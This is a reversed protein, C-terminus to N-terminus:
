KNEIVLKESINKGFKETIQMKLQQLNGAGIPESTGDEGEVFLTYIDDNKVDNLETLIKKFFVPLIQERVMEIEKKKWSLHELAEIKANEKIVDILVYGVIEKEKESVFEGDKLYFPEVFKLEKENENEKFEKYDFKNKFEFGEIKEVMVVKKSLVEKMAQNVKESKELKISLNIQM